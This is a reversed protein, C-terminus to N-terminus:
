AKTLVGSVWQEFPSFSSYRSEIRKWQMSPRFFVQRYVHIAVADLYSNFNQHTTIFSSGRIIWIMEFVLNFLGSFYSLLWVLCPTSLSIPMNVWHFLSVIPLLAPNYEACGVRESMRCGNTLDGLNEPGKGELRYFSTNMCSLLTHPSVWTMCFHASWCTKDKIQPNVGVESISLDLITHNQSKAM